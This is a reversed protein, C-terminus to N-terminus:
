RPPPLRFLRVQGGGLDGVALLDTDVAIGGLQQVGLEALTWARV